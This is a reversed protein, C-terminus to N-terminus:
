SGRITDLIEKIAYYEPNGLKMIADPIMTTTIVVIAIASFFGIVTMPIIVEPYDIVSDRCTDTEMKKKMWRWSKVGFKYAIYILVLILISTFLEVAGSIIQQRILVRMLYETAVGLKDAMADIYDFVKETIKDSM